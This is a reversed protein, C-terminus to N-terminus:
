RRSRRPATPTLSLFATIADRTRSDDLRGSEPREILGVVEYDPEEDIIPIAHTRLSPVRAFQHTAHIVDYSANGDDDRPVGDWQTKTQCTAGDRECPLDDVAQDVRDPLVAHVYSVPLGKEDCLDDIWESAPRGDVTLM